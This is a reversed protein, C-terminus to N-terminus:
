VNGTVPLSTRAKRELMGLMNLGHLEMRNQLIKNSSGQLLVDTYDAPLGTSKSCPGPM